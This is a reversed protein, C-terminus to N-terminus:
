IMTRPAWPWTGVTFLDPGAWSRKSGLGCFRVEIDYHWQPNAPYASSWWESPALRPLCRRASCSWRGWNSTAASRASRGATAALESRSPAHSLEATTVRDAAGMSGHGEGGDHPPPAARSYPEPPGGAGCGRQGRTQTVSRLHIDAASNSSEADGM